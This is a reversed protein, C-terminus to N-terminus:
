RHWAPAAVATKSLSTKGLIQFSVGSETLCGRESSLKLRLKFVRWEALLQGGPSQRWRRAVRGIVSWRAVAELAEGSQWYSVV